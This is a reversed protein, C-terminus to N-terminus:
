KEKLKLLYYMDNYTFLEKEVIHRWLVNGRNWELFPKTSMGERQLQTLIRHYDKSECPIKLNLKWM